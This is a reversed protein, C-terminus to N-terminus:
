GQLRKITALVANGIWEFDDIELYVQASVRLIWTGYNEQNLHFAPVWTPYDRMVETALISATTDNCAAPLRVNIMAATGPYPSSSTGNKNDGALFPAYRSM